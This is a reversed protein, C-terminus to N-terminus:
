QRPRPATHSRASGLETLEAGAVPLVAGAAVRADAPYGAIGVPRVRIPRRALGGHHRRLPEACLWKHPRQPPDPGAGAAGPLHPLPQTQVVAIHSRLRHGNPAAGEDRDRLDACHAAACVGAHPAPDSADCDGVLVEDFRVTGAWRIPAHEGRGIGGSVSVSLRNRKRCVFLEGASRIRDVCWGARGRGPTCGM